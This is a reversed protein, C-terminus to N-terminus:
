RSFEYILSDYVSQPVVIMTTSADMMDSTIYAMEYYVDGDKEFKAFCKDTKYNCTEVLKFESEDIKGTFGNRIVKYCTYDAQEPDTVCDFLIFSIITPGAKETISGDAEKMKMTHPEEIVKYYDPDSIETDTVSTIIDNGKNYADVLMDYTDQAVIVMQGGADPTFSGSQALAYYMVGDKEFKAFCKDTKYDCEEIFEFENDGWKGSEGDQYVIYIPYEATEPDTACGFLIEEATGEIWNGMDITTATGTYFGDTTTEIVPEPDSSSKPLNSSVQINDCATLLTFISITIIILTKRMTCGKIVEPHFLM